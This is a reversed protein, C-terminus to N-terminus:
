FDHAANDSDSDSSDKYKNLWLPDSNQPGNPIPLLASNSKSICLLKRTKLSIVMSMVHSSLCDNNSYKPVGM